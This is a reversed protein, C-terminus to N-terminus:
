RIPTLYTGLATSCKRVYLAILLLTIETFVMLNATSFYAILISLPDNFHDYFLKPDKSNPEMGYSM